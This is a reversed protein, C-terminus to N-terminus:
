IMIKKVTLTSPSKKRMLDHEFTKLLQLTIM